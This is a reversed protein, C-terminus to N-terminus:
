WKCLLCQPLGCFVANSYDLRSLVLPCVVTKNADVSLYGQIMNICRLELYAARCTNHVQQHFLLFFQVLISLIPFSFIVDLVKQNIIVTISIDWVWLSHRCLKFCCIFSIAPLANLHM